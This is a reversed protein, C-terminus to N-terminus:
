VLRFLLSFFAINSRLIDSNLPIVIESWMFRTCAFSMKRGKIRHARRVCVIRHANQISKRKEKRSPIPSVDLPVYPHPRRRRCSTLRCHRIHINFIYLGRLVNVYIFNSMANLRSSSRRSDSKVTLNRRYRWAKAVNFASFINNISVNSLSGLDAFSRSLAMFRDFAVSKSVKIAAWRELGTFSEKGSQLLKILPITYNEEHCM